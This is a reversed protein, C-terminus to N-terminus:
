QISLTELGATSALYMAVAWAAPVMGMKASYPM